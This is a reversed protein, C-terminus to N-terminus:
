LKVDLQICTFLQLLFSVSHIFLHIIVCHTVFCTMLEFVALEPHRYMIVIHVCIFVTCVVCHCAVTFHCSLECYVVYFELQVVAVSRWKFFDILIDEKVCGEFSFLVSTICFITCKFTCM